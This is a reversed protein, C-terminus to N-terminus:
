EEQCWRECYGAYITTYYHQSVSPYYYASSVTGTLTMPTAVGQIACGTGLDKWGSPCSAPTCTSAVTSSMVCKLSIINGGGGQAVWKSGNYVYMSDDSSNYVMEGEQPDSLNDKDVPLYTVSRHVSLQNYSGYPSPYYTTITFSEEEAFVTILLAFIFFLLLTLKNLRRM